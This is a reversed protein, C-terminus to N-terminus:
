ERAWVGVEEEERWRPALVGEEELLGGDEVPEEGGGRRIEGM